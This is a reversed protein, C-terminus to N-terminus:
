RPELQTRLVSQRMMQSACDHPFDSLWTGPANDHRVEWFLVGDQYRLPKARAKTTQMNAAIRHM